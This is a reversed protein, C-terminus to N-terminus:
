IKKMIEKVYNIHETSQPRGTFNVKLFQQIVQKDTVRDGMEAYSFLQHDGFKNQAHQSLDGFYNGHLDKYEGMLFGRIANLRQKGDVIDRFAVDTEGMAVRKEITSWDHTKILIRGCEIGNYISEILLQNDKKTWVFDRQYYLKNNNEDYVYPNWNLEKIQVGQISYPKRFKRKEGDLDLGNIISEMSYNISKIYRNDDLFPNAGVYNDFRSDVDKVYITHIERGSYTETVTLVDGFVSNVVCLVLKDPFQSYQPFLKGHKVYISDGKVIPQKQYEALQRKKKNSIYESNYM